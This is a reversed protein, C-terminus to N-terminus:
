MAPDGSEESVGVGTLLGEARRVSEGVGEILEWLREQAEKGEALGRERGQAWLGWGSLGWRGGHAGLGWVSVSVRVFPGMERTGAKECSRWGRVSDSVM